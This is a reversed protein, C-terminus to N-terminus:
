ATKLRMDESTLTPGGPQRVTPHDLERQLGAELISRITVGREQAAAKLRAHLPATIKAYLASTEDRGAPVWQARGGVTRTTAAARM